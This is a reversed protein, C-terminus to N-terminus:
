RWDLWYRYDIRESNDLTTLYQQSPQAACQVPIFEPEAWGTMGGMYDRSFGWSGCSLLQDYQQERQCVVCTEFMVQIDEGESGYADSVYPTDYIAVSSARMISEEWPKDRNDKPTKHMGHGHELTHNDYFPLIFTDPIDIQIPLENILTKINTQRLQIIRYRQCDAINQGQIVGKNNTFFHIEIGVGTANDRAQYAANDGGDHYWHQSFALIGVSDNPPKTSPSTVPCVKNLILENAYIFSSFCLSILLTITNLYHCM